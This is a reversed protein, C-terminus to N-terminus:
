PSQRCIMTLCSKGLRWHLEVTRLPRDLHVAIEKMSLGLFVRLHVVEFLKEDQQRMKELASDFDLFGDVGWPRESEIEDLVVDARPLLREQRARKRAADLLLNRMTAALYLAFDRDSDFKAEDLDRVRLYADHLLATPQHVGDEHNWGLTRHAVRRLNSYLREFRADISSM